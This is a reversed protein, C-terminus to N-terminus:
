GIASESEAKGLLCHGRLLEFGNALTISLAQVFYDLAESYKGTEKYFDGINLLANVRDEPDSERSFELYEKYLKEAEDYYGFSVMIQAANQSSQVMGEESNAQQYHLISQRYYEFAEKNKGFNKSIEGLEQYLLGYFFDSLQIDGKRDLFQLLMDGSEQRYGASISIDALVISCVWPGRMSAWAQTAVSINEASAQRIKLIDEDSLSVSIPSFIEDNQDKQPLIGELDKLWSPLEGSVIIGRSSGQGSEYFNVLDSVAALPDREPLNLWFFGPSENRRGRIGLYNPEADLDAGSYGLFLWMYKSGLFNLMETISPHLGQKRQALTDICTQPQSATGHLKLLLCAEGDTDIGSTAANLYDQPQILVNIPVGLREFAREILTDFNTTIIAKLYGTKALTALWLHVENPEDGELCKLVDFYSSGIRNTILESIFEPPLKGDTERQKVLEALAQPETHENTITSAEGAIADLVAHNLQWWSPLCSPPLVSIGAGVFFLIRGEKILELIETEM